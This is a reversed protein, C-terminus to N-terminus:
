LLAIEVMATFLLWNSYVPVIVRTAELAAVLQRRTRADIGDRLARPARVLGHALFAADVLPQGGRDWNLYDPSAPDVARALAQRALALYHGRQQGEPSSDEGLELWPAMGALTRGFAELHSVDARTAAGPRVEVPMRARLRGAALNELVPSSMRTLATVWYARDDEVPVAAAPAPQALLRLPELAGVAGAAKLFSRRIM